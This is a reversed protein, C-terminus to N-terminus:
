QQQGSASVYRLIITEGQMLSLDVDQVGRYLLRQDIANYVDAKYPLKIVRNGASAANITVYSKNAYLTDNSCSFIHVGAKKAWARIIEPTLVPNLTYVSTWGDMKKYAMTVKDSGKLTALTQADADQVYFLKCISGEMGFPSLETKEEAQKLWTKGEPSLIQMPEILKEDGSAICIGTLEHMQEISKKNTEFLGPAYCWIVVRDKNKVKQNIKL